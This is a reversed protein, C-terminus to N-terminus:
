EQDRIHGPVYERRMTKGGASNRGRKFSRRGGKNKSTSSSPYSLEFDFRFVPGKPNAGGIRNVIVANGYEHGDVMIRISDGGMICKTPIEWNGGGPNPNAFGKPVGSPIFTPAPLQFTFEQGSHRKVLDTFYKNLRNDNLAKLRNVSNLLGPKVSNIFGEIETHMREQFKDDITGTIRKCEEPVEEPVEEPTPAPAPAPAPSPSRSRSNFQSMSTLVGSDITPQVAPVSPGPVVPPTDVIPTGLVGRTGLQEALGANGPTFAPVNPGPSIPRSARIRALTGRAGLKQALGANGPTFAPVRGPSQERVRAQAVEPPPSLSRGRDMTGRTGLQEALGANGPAFAPVRGPSQERVRALAIQEPTVARVANEPSASRRALAGVSGPTAVVDTMRNGECDPDKAMERYKRIEIDWLDQTKKAGNYMNESISRDADSKKVDAEATQFAAFAKTASDAAAKKSKNTADPKAATDNATDRATYYEKELKKRKNEADKVATTHKDLRAKAQKTVKEVGAYERETYDSFLKSADKWRQEQLKMDAKTEIARDTLVSLNEHPTEGEKGADELEKQARANIDRASCFDSAAVKLDRKRNGM